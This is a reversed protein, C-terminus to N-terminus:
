PSCGRDSQAQKLRIGWLNLARRPRNRIQVTSSEFGLASPLLRLCSGGTSIDHITHQTFVAESETRFEHVLLFHTIGGM